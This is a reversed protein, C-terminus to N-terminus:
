ELHGLQSLSGISEPVMGQLKNEGAELATLEKLLGIEAPLKGRLKNDWLTLNAVRKGSSGDTCSTVGKRFTRRLSDRWKCVHLTNDMFKYPESWGSGQTEYYLLALTFREAIEENSLPDKGEQQWKTQDDVLWDMARRHNSQGNTFSTTPITSGSQESIIDVLQAYLVSTPTSSPEVSPIVSPSSSVTPSATTGLIGGPAPPPPNKTLVVALAIVVGLILLIGLILYQLKIKRGAITLSYKEPRVIEASPIDEIQDM